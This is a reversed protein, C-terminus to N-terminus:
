RTIPAAPWAQSGITAYAKAAGHHHPPNEARDPKRFPPFPLPRWRRLGLLRLRQHLLVLLSRLSRSLIRPECGRWSLHFFFFLLLPFLPRPGPTPPRCRPSM